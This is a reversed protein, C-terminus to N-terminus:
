ALGPGSGGNLDGLRRAPAPGLLLTGAALSPVVFHNIAADCIHNSHM